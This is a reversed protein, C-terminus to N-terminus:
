IPEIERSKRCHFQKVTLYNNNPVIVLNSGCHGVERVHVGLCIGGPFVM